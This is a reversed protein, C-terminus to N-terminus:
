KNHELTQNIDREELADNLKNSLEIAKTKLISSLNQTELAKKVAELAKRDDGLGSYGQAMGYWLKGNNPQRLILNQYTKIADQFKILGIQARALEHLAFVWEPDLELAKEAALKAEDWIELNNYHESLVLYTTQADLALSKKLYEKEKESDEMIKYLVVLSTIKHSVVDYKKEATRLAELLEREADEYKGIRIYLGGLSFRLNHFEPSEQLGKKAWVIAKNCDGLLAFYYSYSSSYLDGKYTERTLAEAAEDMGCALLASIYWGILSDYLDPSIHHKNLKRSLSTNPDLILAKEFYPLAASPDGHVNYTHLAMLYHALAFDPYSELYEKIFEYARDGEGMEWYLDVMASVAKPNRDDLALVREYYNKAANLQNLKLLLSGNLILVRIKDPWYKVCFSFQGLADEFLGMDRLLISMQWRAVAYEYENSYSYDEIQQAILLVQDTKAELQYLLALNTLLQLDDNKNNSQQRLMSRAEQYQGRKKLRSVKWDFIKKSINVLINNM